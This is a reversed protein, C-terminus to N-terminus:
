NSTKKYVAQSWITAASYSDAYMTCSVGGSLEWGNNLHQAVTLQFMDLNDRTAIVKYEYSIKQSDLPTQSVMESRSPTVPNSINTETNVVAEVPDVIVEPTIPNSPSAMRTPQTPLKSKNKTSM